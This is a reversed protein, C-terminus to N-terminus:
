LLENSKASAVMKRIAEFFDEETDFPQGSGDILAVAIMGDDVNEKMNKELKNNASM